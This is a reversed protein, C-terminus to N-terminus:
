DSGWRKWERQVRAFTGASAADRKGNVSVSAGEAWAPIRLSM